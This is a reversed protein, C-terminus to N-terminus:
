FAEVEQRYHAVQQKLTSLHNADFEELLAMTLEIAMVHELVVGAAPVICTDSREIMSKEIQKTDIHVSDLPQYLTPIPKIFAQMVLPMGNTMGGEFGGYTNSKRAFSTEYMMQDHVQSGFSTAALQADGVFVGKVAQVSMFAASLKADLKRDYHVYSGLGLPVNEALVEVIGGLSDGKAKATDIHECMLSSMQEDQCRVFSQEVKSQISTIDQEYSALKIQGIQIVHSFVKIDLESLLQQCLAGVAVRIATERASSRELVNRLDRHHYKIAGILDAHGPRPVKKQEFSVTTPSASMVEGWNAHDKNQIVLTIPSGITVGHRVGSLIQIQDQEIKMRGGRGYGGQRRKLQENIVDSNITLGAPIGEIIATLQAGHSEGATVYRM